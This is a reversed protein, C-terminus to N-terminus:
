QPPLNNPVNFTPSEISSASPSTRMAANGDNSSRSRGDVTLTVAPINSRFTDGLILGVGVGIGFIAVVAHLTTELLHALITLGLTIDLYKKRNPKLM